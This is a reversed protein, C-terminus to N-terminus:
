NLKRLLEFPRTRSSKGCLWEVGGNRHPDSLGQFLHSITAVLGQPFRRFAICLLADALTSSLIRTEAIRLGQCSISFVLSIGM